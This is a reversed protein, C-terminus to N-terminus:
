LTHPFDLNGVSKPEKECDFFFLTICRNSKEKNNKGRKKGFYLRKNDRSVLMKKLPILKGDKELAIDKFHTRDCNQIFRAFMNKNM